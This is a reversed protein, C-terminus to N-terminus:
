GSSKIQKYWDRFRRYLQNWNVDEEKVPFMLKGLSPSLIERFRKVAVEEWAEDDYKGYKKIHDKEIEEYQAMLDISWKAGAPTETLINFLYDVNNAM